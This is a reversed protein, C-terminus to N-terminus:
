RGVNARGTVGQAHRGEVKKRAESQGTLVALVEIALRKGFVKEAGVRKESAEVIWLWGQRRRQKESLPQPTPLM